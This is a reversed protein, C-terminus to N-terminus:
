SLIHKFALLLLQPTLGLLPPALERVVIRLLHAGLIVSKDAQDLFLIAIDALMGFLFNVPPRCLM